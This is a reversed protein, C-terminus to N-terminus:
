IGEPNWPLVVGGNLEVQGKDLAETLTRVAAARSCGAFRELQTVTQTWSRPPKLRNVCDRAVHTEPDGEIRRTMAFLNSSSEIRRRPRVRSLIQTLAAKRGPKGWTVPKAGRPLPGLERGGGWYAWTQRVVGELHQLFWAFLAAPREGKRRARRVLTRVLELGGRWALEAAKAMRVREHGAWGISRLLRLIERAQERRQARPVREPESPSTSGKTNTRLVQHTRCRARRMRERQAELSAARRAPDAALRERYRRCKEANSLPTKRAPDTRPM